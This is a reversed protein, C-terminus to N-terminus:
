FINCNASRLIGISVNFSHDRCPYQLEVRDLLPTDKFILYNFRISLYANDSTRVLICQAIFDCCGFVTIQSISFSYAMKIDNNQV